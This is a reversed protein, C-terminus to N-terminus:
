PFCFFLLSLPCPFIDLKQAVGEKVKNPRCAFDAWQCLVEARRHVVTLHLPLRLIGWQLVRSSM